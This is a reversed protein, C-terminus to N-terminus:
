LMNALTLVIDHTGARFANESSAGSRFISESSAGYRFGKESFSLIWLHLYTGGFNVKLGKVWQVVVEGARKSLANVLLSNAGGHERFYVFLM